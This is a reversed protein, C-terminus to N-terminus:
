KRWARIPCGHEEAASGRGPRLIRFNEDSKPEGSLFDFDAIKPM